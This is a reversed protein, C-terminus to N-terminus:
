SSPAAAEKASDTVKCCLVKYGTICCAGDGCSGRNEEEYGRPCFGACFPATGDWYCGQPAPGDMAENAKLIESPEMKFNETPNPTLKALL